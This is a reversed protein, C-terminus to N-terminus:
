AGWWTPVFQFPPLAGRMRFISVAHFHTILKVYGRFFVWSENFLFYWPYRLQKSRSPLLFVWRGHWSDFVLKVKVRYIKLAWKNITVCAFAARAKSEPPVSSFWSLQPRSLWERIEFWNVEHICFSTQLSGCVPSPLTRLKVLYWVM